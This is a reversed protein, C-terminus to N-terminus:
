SLSSHNNTNAVNIKWYGNQITGIRDVLHNAKLRRFRNGVTNISIHLSDCLELYTFGPHIAILHYLDAEKKTFQGYDINPEEYELSKLQVIMKKRHIIMSPLPIHHKRCLQHLQQINYEGDNIYGTLYFHYALLPNMVSSYKEFLNEVNWQHPLQGCNAIYIKNKYISIQIPAGRTYDKHVIANIILPRMIEPTVYFQEQNTDNMFQSYIIDLTKEIQEFVNGHVEQQSMIHFDDKFFAVQIFAGEMWQDIDKAFLLLATNTFYPGNMLHTNKFLDLYEIDNHCEIRQNDIVQKKYQELTKINLDDIQPSRRSYEDWPKNRNRIM